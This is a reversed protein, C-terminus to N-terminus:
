SRPEWAVELGGRENSMRLRIAHVNTGLVPTTRPFRAVYATSFDGYAPLAWFGVEGMSLAEWGFVAGYFARAGDLDRTLLNNFAGRAKFSGAHQFLELKFTLVSDGLTGGDGPLLPTRRVHGAIRRHAERIDSPTVPLPV